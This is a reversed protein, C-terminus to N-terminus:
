TPRPGACNSGVDIDDPKFAVQRTSSPRLGAPPHESCESPMFQTVSLKSDCGSTM